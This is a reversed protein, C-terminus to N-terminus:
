DTRAPSNFRLPSIAQLTEAPVDPPVGSVCDAILNASGHALAWAGPGHAFNVFLRPQAGASGTALPGVVPLGDPSLLKPGQWAHGASIKAAGPIWDHAAQGLLAIAQERLADAGSGAARRRPSQVLPAGAIRLRDTMRAITIRKVTDVVAVQPAREEHAISTTLAHLLAPQLPLSVGCCTLLAPSGAGAAVVVADAVMADIDGRRAAEAERPVLEVAIRSSEVRIGIARRGFQFQVDQDDLVQKLQKAFLPCNASREYPLWIGHAVDAAPVSPELAACEEASLVQHPTEQEVLLALAHAAHDFDRASRFVHLVGARQEFELHHRAEISTLTHRSADVLPRLARVRRAYLGPEQSAKLQKAFRRVQSSLGPKLLMGNKAARRSRLMQPGFWVDLPTPLLLGGHGYSAQQAVTAHQEVVCVRHGRISLQYATAVGATGGGIVIVDM